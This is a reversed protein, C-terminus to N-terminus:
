FIGGGQFLHLSKLIPTINEIKTINRIIRVAANQILQLCRISKKSPGM